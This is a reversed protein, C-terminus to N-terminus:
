VLAVEMFSMVQSQEQEQNQFLFPMLIAIESFGVFTLKFM